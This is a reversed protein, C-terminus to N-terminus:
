PLAQVQLPAELKSGLWAIFRKASNILRHIWWSSEIKLCLHKIAWFNRTWRQSSGLGVGTSGMRKLNLSLVSHRRDGRCLVIVETTLTTELSIFRFKSGLKRSTWRLKAMWLSNSRMETSLNSGTTKLRSKLSATRCKLSELRWCQRVKLQKQSSQKRSWENISSVPHSM